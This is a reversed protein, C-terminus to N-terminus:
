AKWPLLLIQPCDQLSRNKQVATAFMLLGTLGQATSKRLTEAPKTAPLIPHTNEGVRFLREMPMLRRVTITTSVSNKPIISIGKNLKNEIYIREELTLHKQNDPIYKSM